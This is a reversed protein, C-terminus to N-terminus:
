DQDGAPPDTRQSLSDIGNRVTTLVSQLQSQLAGLQGDLSSLIGRVYEEADSKLTDAERGAREIITQARQQAAQSIEHEGVLKAADSQALQVIRAGEEEAQALLRDREQYVREAQRVQKPIATRMQDVLDLFADEDVVLYRSLPIRWSENSLQEL